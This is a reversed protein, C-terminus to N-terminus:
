AFQHVGSETFSGKEFYLTPFLPPLGTVDVETRWTYLCVYGCVSVYVYVFLLVYVKYAILM